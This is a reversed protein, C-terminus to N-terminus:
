EEKSCDSAPSEAPVQDKINRRGYEAILAADVLGTHPKSSRSTALWGESPWLETVKAFAFEKTKGQPVKGLIKPHWDNSLIRKCKIGQIELSSFIKGASIAMSRMTSARDAHFPCHEFLVLIQAPMGISSMIISFAKGDVERYEIEEAKRKKKEKATAPRLMKMTPMMWKSLIKGEESLVVIGGDLGNDIGVIM